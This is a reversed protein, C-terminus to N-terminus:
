KKAPPPADPNITVGRKRLEDVILRAGANGRDALRATDRALADLAQRVKDANRKQLEQSERTKSLTNSEIILMTAQFDSWALFAAGLVLIPLFPSKADRHERDRHRGESHRRDASSGANSESTGPSATSM